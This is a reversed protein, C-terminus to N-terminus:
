SVSALMRNIRIMLRLLVHTRVLVHAVVVAHHVLHMMPIGASLVLMSTM